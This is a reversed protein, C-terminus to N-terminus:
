CSVEPDEGSRRSFPDDSGLLERCEEKLRNKVRRRAERIASQKMGLETAVRETDHGQIECKWFIDFTKPEFDGRIMELLRHLLQAAENRSEDEDAQDPIQAIFSDTLQHPRRAQFYDNAQNRAITWLWGRFSSGPQDRQFRQVGQSVRTFVNQVLDAADDSPVGWTRLWRYVLPHFLSVLREWSRGDLAKVGGLLSASISQSPSDHPGM